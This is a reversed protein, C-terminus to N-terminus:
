VAAARPDEKGKGGRAEMLAFALRTVRCAMQGVDIAAREMEFHLSPRAAPEGAPAPETGDSGFGPPSGVVALSAAARLASDARLTLVFTQTDDLAAFPYGMAGLLRRLTALEPVIRGREYDSISRKELEEQSWGRVVRLISLAVNLNSPEM